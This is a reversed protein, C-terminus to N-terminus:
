PPVGLAKMGPQLSRSEPDPRLRPRHHGRLHPAHLRGEGPPLLKHVGADVDVQDQRRRGGGAGAEEPATQAGGVAICLEVVYEAGVQFQRVVFLAKVRSGTGPNGSSVNRRRFAGCNEDFPEDNSM